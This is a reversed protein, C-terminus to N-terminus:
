SWRRAIFEVIFAILLTSILMTVIIQQSAFQVAFDFGNAFTGPIAEMVTKYQKRLSQSIMESFGHALFIWFLIAVLTTVSHSISYSYSRGARAGLIRWGCVAALGVNLEFFWKPLAGGEFTPVTWRTLVYFLAGFLLASFAKAATPM